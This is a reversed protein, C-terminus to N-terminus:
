KAVERLIEENMKDYVRSSYRIYIATLLWFLVLLFAGIVVAVTTVGSDSIPRALLGPNFAAVLMFGFFVCITFWALSWTVRSRRRVLEQYKPHARIRQYLESSM